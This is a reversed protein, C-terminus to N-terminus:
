PRAEEKGPEVDWCRRVDDPTWRGFEKAIFELMCTLFIAAYRFVGAVDLEKARVSWRVSDGDRRLFRDALHVNSHTFSSLDAYFIDYSELHDVEKAMERVSKGSWNSFPVVRGDRATREFLPRKTSYKARIDAERSSWDQRWELDMAERWGDDASQRHTSCAEMRRHLLMADFDAYQDARAAPDKSIYHATVDAEFMPRVIAYGVTTPFWELGYAEALRLVARAASVSHLFLCLTVSTYMWGASHMPFEGSQHQDALGVLRRLVLQHEETTLLRIGM